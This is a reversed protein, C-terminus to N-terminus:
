GKQYPVGFAFKSFPILLYLRIQNAQWLCSKPQPTDVKPVYVLNQLQIQGPTSFIREPVDIRQYRVYPLGLMLSWEQIVDGYKQVKKNKSGGVINAYIYFQVDAFIVM